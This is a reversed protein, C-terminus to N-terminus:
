GPWDDSSSSTDDGKTTGDPMGSVVVTVPLNNQVPSQGGKTKKSKENLSKDQFADLNVKKMESFILKVEENWPNPSNGKFVNETM